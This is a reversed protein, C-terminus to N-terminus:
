EEKECREALAPDNQFVEDLAQAKSLGNKSKMIESAKTEAEAWASGSGDGHGSKGIESFLGSKKVTEVTEDLLALMDNYATGGAAKLSKLVPVLDEEKKGIIAYRKAIEHLEKDEAEQRFKRLAEIEAKVAPNLGKYIDEEEKKDEYEASKEVNNKKCQKKKKEADKMEEQEMLDDDGMGPIDDEKKVGNKGGGCKKQISEMFAIEAQTLKSKDIEFTEMTDGEEAEKPESKTVQETTEFQKVVTDIESQEMGGAKGIFSLLRKWVGVSQEEKNQGEKEEGNSKGEKRKYLEICADPNAGEDVFDVKRIKLNKLKTAM